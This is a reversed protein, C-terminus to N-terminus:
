PLPAAAALVADPDLAAIAEASGMASVMLTGEPAGILWVVASQAVGRSAPLDYALRIAEGLPTTVTEHTVEHADFSDEFGGSILGAVFELLPGGVSPHAVLVAISTGLTGSTDASPPDFAAFVPVAYDGMEAGVEILREAGPYRGIIGARAAEDALTPADVMEWGVPVPLRLGAEPVDVMVTGAPALGPTPLLSATPRPLATPRPSPRPSPTPSPSPTLSPSPSPTAAAEGPEGACASASLALTGALALAAGRRSPRTSRM